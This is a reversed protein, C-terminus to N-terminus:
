GPRTWAVLRLDSERPVGVGWSQRHANAKTMRHGAHSHREVPRPHRKPHGCLPPWGKSPVRGPAASLETTGGCALPRSGTTARAQSVRACAHRDTDPTAPRSGRPGLNPWTREPSTYAPRVREGPTNLDNAPGLHCCPPLVGGQVLRLVIGPRVASIPKDSATLALSWLWGCVGGRGRLSPTRPELGRTPKM